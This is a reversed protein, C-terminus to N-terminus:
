YNLVGRLRDAVAHRDGRRVHVRVGQVQQAIVELRPIARQVDTRSGPIQRRAHREHHAGDALDNADIVDLLEDIPGVLIEPLVVSMEDVLSPDPQDHAIPPQSKCTYLYFLLPM